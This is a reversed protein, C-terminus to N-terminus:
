EGDDEREGGGSTRTTISHGKGTQHQGAAVPQAGSTRTVVHHGGRSLALVQGGSGLAPDHGSQLQVALLAFVILFTAITAMVVPLPGPLRRRRRTETM